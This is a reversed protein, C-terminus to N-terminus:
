VIHDNRLLILMSWNMEHRLERHYTSKHVRLSNTSSFTKGCLPCPIPNKNKSHKDEFHISINRYDKGCIDCFGPKNLLRGDARFSSENSQRHRMFHVSSPLLALASPVLSSTRPVAVHSSDPLRFIASCFKLNQCVKFRYWRIVSLSFALIHWNTKLFRVKRALIEGKSNIINQGGDYEM